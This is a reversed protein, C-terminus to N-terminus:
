WSVIDSDLRATTVFPVSCMLNDFSVKLGKVCIPSVCVQKAANTVRYARGIKGEWVLNRTPNTDNMRAVAMKSHDVQPSARCVATYIRTFMAFIVIFKYKM